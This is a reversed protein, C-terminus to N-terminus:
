LGPMASESQAPSEIKSIRLRLAKVLDPDTKLREVSFLLGEFRGSMFEVIQFRDMGASPWTARM